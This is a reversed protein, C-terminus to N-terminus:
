LSPLERLFKFSHELHLLVQGRLENLERQLPSLYRFFLLWQLYVHGLMRCFFHQLQYLDARLQGLVLRLYKHLSCLKYCM